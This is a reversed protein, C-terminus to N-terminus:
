REDREQQRGRYSAVLDWTSRWQETFFAALADREEGPLVLFGGLVPQGQALSYDGLLALYERRQAVDVLLPPVGARLLPVNALLRALRGNGDAYPHIGTFGLHVDTYIDTL